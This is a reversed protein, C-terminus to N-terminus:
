HIYSGNFAVIYDIFPFDRNYDKVVRIGKSTTICFIVGNKRVRDLELMTSVSIAEDSNILTGSFDSVIMKYM